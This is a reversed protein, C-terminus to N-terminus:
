CYGYGYPCSPAVVVSEAAVLPARPAVVVPRAVVPPRRVVVVRPAVAIPAWTPVAPALVPAAVFDDEVVVTQAQASGVSAVAAAFLIPLLRSPRM